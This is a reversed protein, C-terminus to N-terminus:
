VEGVRYCWAGVRATGHTSDKATNRAQLTGDHAQQQVASNVQGIARQDVAPRPEDANNVDRPSSGCTRHCSQHLNAQM